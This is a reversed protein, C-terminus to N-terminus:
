IFTEAVQVYSLVKDNIASQIKPCEEPLLSSNKRLQELDSLLAEFEQDEQQWQKRLATLRKLFLKQNDCQDYVESVVQLQKKLERIQMEAEDRDSQDRSLQEQKNWSGFQQLISALRQIVYSSIAAIVLKASHLPQPVQDDDAEEEAESDSHANAAWNPTEGAIVQKVYEVQTLLDGVMKKQEADRDRTFKRAYGRTRFVQNCLDKMMQPRPQPRYQQLFNVIASEESSLESPDEPIEGSAYECVTMGLANLLDRGGSLMRYNFNSRPGLSNGLSLIHFYPAPKLIFNLELAERLQQKQMQQEDTLEEDESKSQTNRTRLAEEIGDCLEKATEGQVDYQEAERRIDHLSKEECPEFVLGRKPKRKESALASRPLPKSEAAPPESFLEHIKRGSKRQIRRCLLVKSRAVVQYRAGVARLEPM